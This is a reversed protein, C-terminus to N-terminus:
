STPAKGFAQRVSDVFGVSLALISAAGVAPVTLSPWLACVCSGGLFAAASWLFQPDIGIGAGGLVCAMSLMSAAGAESPHGGRLWVYVDSIAPAIVVFSLAASIQRGLRNVFMRKRLLAILLAVFGVLVADYTLVERMSRTGRHSVESSWGFCVLVVTLVILFGVIWVRQRATRRPDLERAEARAHAELARGQAVEARLAAIREALRADAENLEGLLAEAADPSRRHLEAEIMARLTQELGERARANEPWDRLAQTFAFRSETLARMANPSSWRSESTEVLSAVEALRAQAEDALRSSARHRLYAALSARFALASEPRQTKDAQTALNALEGLEGHKADYVFPESIMAAELVSFLSEGAHRAAGVLTAHLTAGLLYVDTQEDVLTSDARVMEPAMFSPTGVISPAEEVDRDRRLAIGWDVLYVEGFHGVMVNEPKVDRHIIGRAHAFALADAVQMLIEVYAAQRDGHRRELAPWSPHADNRILADLSDGEIRKMVLTPSGDADLGLAHVPVINPHELAGTARAEALLASSGTSLGEPSKATKLRKVAVDRDLSRQHALWVVGMGGEGLPRVLALDAHPADTSTAFSVRPLDVTDTLPAVVPARTQPIAHGQASPLVLSGRRITADFRFGALDEPLLTRALAELVDHAKAHPTESEVEPM